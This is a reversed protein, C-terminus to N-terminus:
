YYYIRVRSKTTKPSTYTKGNIKKNAVVYVYYNKNVKVKKGKVKTVKYYNKSSKVTAVKKYGSKQKTSAYVTYSSAGAVKNWALTFSSTTYKKLKNKMSPQCVYYTTASWGSYIKSSTSYDTVYDRVRISYAANAPSSFYAYSTASCTEVRVAGTKLNKLEVEHYVRSGASNSTASVNISYSGANRTAVKPKSPVAPTTYVDYNTYDYTGSYGVFAFKLRAWYNVGPQLNTFSVSGSVYNGSASQVLRMNSSDTGIWAEVRSIKKGQTVYPNDSINWNVTASTTSRATQWTNNSAQAQEPMACALACAAAAIAVVIALWASRLRSTKISTM